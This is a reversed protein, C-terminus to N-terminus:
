IELEKDKSKVGKFNAFDEKWLLYIMFISRLALDIVQALLVSFLNYGLNDLFAKTLAAKFFISILVNLKTTTWKIEFSVILSDLLM